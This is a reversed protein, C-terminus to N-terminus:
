EASSGRPRSVTRAEDWLREKALGMEREFEDRKRWYFRDPVPPAAVRRRFNGAQITRLDSTRAVRPRTRAKEWAVELKGKLELQAASHQRHARM